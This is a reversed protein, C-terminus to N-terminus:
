VATPPPDQKPQAPEGSLLPALWRSQEDVDILLAKVLLTLPVALLAGLGGLVGAWVILSLFTVTGSLGVSQGVVRPQIVSQIIANLVSYGIIVALATGVGGDLLGIVAPPVLGIIFGVNPIYNTIFALLGWLLPDPIGLVYLLGIDFVAVIAGFVTSVVLYSRTGQAFSHAAQMVTSRQGPIQALKAPFNAADIIMFFILVILFFMSSLVGALGGLLSVVIDVLQGPDFSSTIAKIQDEGVGLSLLWSNVEHIVDNFQPQYDALLTAFKAGSLLLAFALGLLIAYVAIAAGVSGIWGPLGRAIAWDRVPQVAIVLILALFTSAIVDNMARIGLLTIFGAATGVLILLGRPIGSTIGSASPDLPEPPPTSM